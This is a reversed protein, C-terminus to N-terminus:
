DWSVQPKVSMGHSSLYDIVDRPSREDYLKFQTAGENYEGRYTTRGGPNPAGGSGIQDVISFLRNRALAPERGSLALSARPLALKLTVLIKEIVSSNVRNKDINLGPAPKLTIVSICVNAGRDLLYGTHQYLGLVEFLYDKTLGFLAGIGINKFGADFAMDVEELRADYDSKLPSDSHAREYKERNYTEQFLVFHNSGVDNLERLMDFSLNEFEIWPCLGEEMTIKTGEIILNRYQDEPLTGGILIANTVGSERIVQSEERIQEPSLTIRRFSTNSRRFDCYGCNNVCENTIYSCTYLAVNPGKTMMRVDQAVKRARAMNDRGLNQFLASTEIASLGKAEAAKELLGDLSFSGSGDEMQTRILQADVIVM